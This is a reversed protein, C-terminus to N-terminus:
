GDAKEGSATATAHASLATRASDLGPWDSDDIGDEGDIEAILARTGEVVREASALSALIADVQEILERETTCREWGWRGCADTIRDFRAQLDDVEARLEDREREAQLAEGVIAQAEYDHCDYGHEWLPTYLALTRLEAKECRAKLEDREAAASVLTAVYARIAEVDQMERSADGDFKECCRAISALVREMSERGADDTM